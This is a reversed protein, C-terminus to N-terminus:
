ITSITSKPNKVESNGDDENKTKSPFLEFLKANGYPDNSDEKVSMLAYTVAIIGNTKELQRERSSVADLILIQEKDSAVQCM